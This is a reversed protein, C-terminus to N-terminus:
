VGTTNNSQPFKYCHTLRNLWDGTIDNIVVKGAEQHAHIMQNNELVIGLHSTTRGFKFTVIDGPQMDSINIEVCGFYELTQLLLEEKNHLHWQTSYKPAKINPDVININRGVCLVYMACDVGAGKVGAQHHYPTNLWTLAEKVIEDNIM